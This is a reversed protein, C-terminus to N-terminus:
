FTLNMGFTYIASIPYINNDIGMQVRDSNMIEPSFGNYKFSTWPNQASFYLRLKQVSLQKTFEKPLTYGLQINRIRFFSGDEVFFSSPLIIAQNNTTMPYSNSTGAGQWRNKYFDLDWNENGYRQERNYNYIKNGQVGQFDMAFDFDYVSLNFGFGYTYKPIPSGLFTKDRADIVGNGDLDAFRFGGVAANTQQPAGNIDSQNQFVGAVQYGYYSGVPQGTQLRIITSGFLHAGPENFSDLYVSTIKNKIATINAYVGLRINESIKTDYNVSAEFGRNNFSYANTVFDNWNSAGSISPQNIAYVVNKSDKDFYTAEIKLKNNLLAMEVGIDRGTTTEWDINPDVVRTVTEAPNGTGGFYAGSNIITTLKDYDRRVDPNGLKGWSARLKLLNFLNQNSMFGEKSIVWGVSVAPFTKFRNNSSFGTAGDRRVSANVLYKGAYDYNLRGFLSEIRNKYPVMDVDKNFTFTVLDVGNSLVLDRDHGTYPIDFVKSYVGHYYNQTRSFGGLVELHHQNFNKKWSLINDWVYGETRTDRTILNSRTPTQNPNYNNIANYEYKYSNTHDITYSVKFSFDKLFKVEAWVNNLIRDQKEKSRLLDLTARPNALSILSFPDYNGTAPNVPYYVPPAGYAALLPNSAINTNIHSWTFNNGVSINNNIKYTLNARTNLRQFNNGSNVGRGAALTGGDDLYGISAFYNLKKALTGSASFDNSTIFGTKLVEDFWNTNAPYNARSIFKTPDTVGENRLKENYLEVYQDSNTMKPVNTVTKVGIYSSFNFVTKNKGSKTKIIVAGNSARAGFIALSSPDKLISMSEVDQPNLFSIDDTIMGDVIFVTKGSLSSIGRIDVRPSGGPAGSNQIQVGAVKGQISSIPNPNPKDALDKASVVGISGTVNEKKQSGYGIMVVEEIAKEKTITDSKKTQAHVDASFYFAAVLCSVQLVKKNM